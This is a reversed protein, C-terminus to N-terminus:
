PNKPPNKLSQPAQELYTEIAYNLCTGCDNGVGLSKLVEKVTSASKSAEKIQSDTIGRCVCIYM